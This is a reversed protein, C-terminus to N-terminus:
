VGGTTEAGEPLASGAQSLIAMDKFSKPKGSNVWNDANNRKVKAIECFLSKLLALPSNRHGLCTLKRIAVLRRASPPKTNHVKLSGIFIARRVYFVALALAFCIKLTGNLITTTGMFGFAKASQMVLSKLAKSGGHFGFYARMSRSSNNRVSIKFNRKWISSSNKFMTINHLFMNASRQFSFFNDMMDIAVRKIVIDAIQNECCLTNM